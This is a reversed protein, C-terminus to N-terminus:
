QVVFHGIKLFYKQLHSTVHCTCINLQFLMEQQVAHRHVYIYIVVSHLLCMTAASLAHLTQACTAIHLSIIRSNISAWGCVCVRVSVHVCVCVCVCLCVCVHVCKKMRRAWNLPTPCSVPLLRPGRKLLWIVAFFSHAPWGWM